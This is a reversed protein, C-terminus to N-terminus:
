YSFRQPFRHLALLTLLIEKFNWRFTGYSVSGAAKISELDLSEITGLSNCTVGFWVCASSDSLWGTKQTWKAGNTGIFLSALAFREMRSQDSFQYDKASSLWVLAQNRVSCSNISEEFSQRYIQPVFNDRHEQYRVRIDDSIITIQDNCACQDVVHPQTLGSFDCNGPQFPDLPTTPSGKTTTQSSDDDDLLFALSVAVGGAILLVYCIFVVLHFNADPHRRKAAPAITQMQRNKYQNEVDRADMEEDRHFVIEESESQDDDDLNYLNEVDETEMEEDRHFEIEESESQDDDDLDGSHGQLISDTAVAHMVMEDAVHEDPDDGLSEDADEQLLEGAEDRAGVGTQEAADEENGGEAVKNEEQEVEEEIMEDANAEDDDDHEIDGKTVDELIEEEDDSDTVYEYVTAGSEQLLPLNQSNQGDELNQSPVELVEESWIRGSSKGSEGSVEDNLNVLEDITVESEGGAPTEESNQPETLKEGPPAEAQQEEKQDGSTGEGGQIQPSPPMLLDQPAPPSPIDGTEDAM